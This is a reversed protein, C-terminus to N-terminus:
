LGAEKAASYWLLTVTKVVTPALKHRVNNSLKPTWGKRLYQNYLDYVAVERAQHLFYKKYGKTKLERLDAESPRADPLRLPRILLMVGIEFLHHSTYLGKPGYVKYTNGITQSVTNGKFVLKEKITTRSDKDKGARLTEITHEYPFHHAPTLGDVV